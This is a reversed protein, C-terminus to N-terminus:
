YKEPPDQELGLQTYDNQRKQKRTLFASLKQEAQEESELRPSVIALKGETFKGIYFGNENQNSSDLEIIHLRKEYKEVVSNLQIGYFDLFGEALSSGIFSLENLIQNPKTSYDEVRVKSAGEVLESQGNQQLFREFLYPRIEVESALEKKMIEKRLVVLPKGQEEILEKKKSSSLSLSQKDLVVGKHQNHLIQSSQKMHSWKEIYIDKGGEM